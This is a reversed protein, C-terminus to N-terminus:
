KVCFKIFHAEIQAATLENAIVHAEIEVMHHHEPYLDKIARLNAPTINDLIHEKFDAKIKIVPTLKATPSVCGQIIHWVEHRVTDHDEADVTGHTCITLTQTSPQWSGYFKEKDCKPPDMKITIYKDVTNLLQTTGPDIKSYAPTVLSILALGAGLLSKIM